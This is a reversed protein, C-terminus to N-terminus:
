VRCGRVHPPGQGVALPTTGEEAYLEATARRLRESDNSSPPRLPERHHGRDFRRTRTRRDGQPPCAVARLARAPPAGRGPSWDLSRGPAGDRVEPRRAPAP